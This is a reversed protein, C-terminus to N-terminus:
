MVAGFAALLLPDVPSCPLAPPVGWGYVEACGCVLGAREFVCALLWVCVIGCTGSWGFACVTDLVADGGCVLAVCLGRAVGFCCPRGEGGVCVCVQLYSEAETTRLTASRVATTLPELFRAAGPAMVGGMGVLVSQLAEATALDGCAACMADQLRVSSAQAPSTPSLMAHAPVRRASDQVVRLRVAVSSLSALALAM